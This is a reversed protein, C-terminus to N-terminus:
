MSAALPLGVAVPGYVIEILTSGASLRILGSNPTAPVATGTVNVPKRKAAGIVAVMPLVTMLRFTTLEVEAVPVKLIGAPAGTPAVGTVAVVEAPVLLGLDNKTKGDIVEILGPSAM